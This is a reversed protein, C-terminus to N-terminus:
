EAPKPAPAPAPEATKPKKCSGECAQVAPVVMAAVGLALVSAMILKKM